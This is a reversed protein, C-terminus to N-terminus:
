PLPFVGSGLRHVKSDTCGPNSTRFCLHKLGSTRPGWAGIAMFELNQNVSAANLRLATRVNAEDVRKFRKTFMSGRDLKPSSGLAEVEGRSKLIGLLSNRVAHLTDVAPSGLNLCEVNPAVFAM